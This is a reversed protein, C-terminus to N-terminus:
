PGVSTIINIATGVAGDAVTGGISGTTSTGWCKVNNGVLACSHGYGHSTANTVGTALTFLNHITTGVHSSDIQGYNNQGFCSFVGADIVCTRAGEYGWQNDVGGLEVKELTPSTTVLVNQLGSGFVTDNQIEGASNGGWCYLKKVGVTTEFIGCAHDNSMSFDLINGSPLNLKTPIITVSEDNVGDNFLGLSKSGFCWISLDEKLACTTFGAAYIKKVGSAIVTYPATIPVFANTLASGTQGYSNDGFCQLAGNVLVCTHYAGAVVDTVGSAIVTSYDIVNGASEYAGFCKLAGSVVVCTHFSGTAFASVGSNFVSIPSNYQSQYNSGNGLQGYYSSGFCKLSGSVVACSNSGGVAVATVGSSFSTYPSPIQDSVVGSGVQGFGNRGFCQMSGSVTACTNYHNASLSTVGSPIITIPSLTKGSTTGFGTAGYANDGFCKLAGSVIACIHDYGISVATVGSSIPTYKSTYNTPSASHDVGDGPYNGWCKLAGSVIACINNDGVAVDTVGSSFFKIPTLNVQNLTDLGFCYLGGGVVACTKNNATSVASVGSSFVTYPILSSNSDNIGNGIAGNANSGWCQLSGNVIACAHTGGISVSTVGSNFVTTPNLIPGGSSQNGVTGSSNEGWCKLNGTSGIACATVGSSIAIPNFAAPSGAYPLSMGPTYIFIKTPTTTNTYSGIGLQGYNNNGFCQIEDSVVVCTDYGGTSVDTVGSSYSTYPTTVYENLASGDGIEGYGAFGFCKLAGSVLACTHAMGIRVKTVGSAIVTYAFANTGLAGTGIGGFSNSGWCQLSGSVVACAFGDGLAVDSVGSAIAITPSLINGSTSGNNTVQGHTNDGWCQLAGSVVACVNGYSVSVATVGSSIVTYPLAVDGGSTGYGVQGKDNKGWCKLSGSVIACITAGTVSIAVSTVGSSFVTYPSSTVDTGISGNGITGSGFCKLAGSVIACTIGVGVAVDTVGGAIVTVPSSVNGTLTNAFRGNDRLGTCKLVGNVAFCSHFIGTALKITSPVYPNLSVSPVSTAPSVGIATIANLEYPYKFQNYSNDGWCKMSGDSDLFCNHYNGSSLMRSEIPNVTLSVSTDISNGVSNTAVLTYTTSSLPSTPTGSIICTTPDISAWAPLPTTGNKISCNSVAFGHDNLLTPVALMPFAVKTTLGISGVYSLQPANSSITELNSSTSDPVGRIQFDCGATLLIGCFIMGLKFHRIFIRGM